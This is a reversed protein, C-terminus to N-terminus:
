GRTEIICDAPGKINKDIIIEGISDAVIRGTRPNKISVVHGRIDARVQSYEFALDADAGMECGELVLNDAYCLPQTEGIKCNRLTLRNSYWALYEGNLVSNEVTVNDTNWFADKTNLISNRIVVNKCYQFSYNGNLTLNDIEINECNMFIYDAENAVVNKLRIHRCKWLTEAAHNLTVDTLSLGDMERFMKPADVTTNAMVLNKSYWLAARAGETFVCDRVEFGDTCWFPYKGEFRCGIATINRSEKIGSEGVGIVVNELQLDHSMYLPREGGFEQNKIITKM